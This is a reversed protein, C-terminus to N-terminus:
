MTRLLDRRSRGKPIHLHGSVCAVEAATACQRMMISDWMIRNPMGRWGSDDKPQGKPTGVMVACCYFAFSPDLLAQGKPNRRHEMGQM